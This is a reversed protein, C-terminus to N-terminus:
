LTTDSSESSSSSELMVMQPSLQLLLSVCHLVVASSRYGDLFFHLLQPPLGIYLDLLAHQFRMPVKILFGQDPIQDVQMHCDGCDRHSNSATEDPEIHSLHM